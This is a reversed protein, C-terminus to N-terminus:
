PFSQGLLHKPESALRHALQTRAGMLPVSLRLPADRTRLWRFGLGSANNSNRSEAQKQATHRLYRKLGWTTRCVDFHRDRHFNNCCRSFAGATPTSIFSGRV